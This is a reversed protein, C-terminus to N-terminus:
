HRGRADEGPIGRRALAAAFGELDDVTLTIDPQAVGLYRIPRRFIVRVGGRSSTGFTLEGGGWRARLGIARWWRYPGEIRWRAVGALPEELRWFGFRARLRDDVLEAWATAPRVGYALLPWRWPADLRFPFRENGM